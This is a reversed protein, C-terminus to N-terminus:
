GVLRVPDGSVTVSWTTRDTINVSTSGLTYRVRWWTKGGYATAINEPLDVRLELLRDSFKSRSGRFPGPQPNWGRGTNLPDNGLVDLEVCGPPASTCAGSGAQDVTGSWGGTPAVDSGSGNVVSWEFDVSHGNPDLLEIAQAGEGPDWLRVLMTKNSHEPGIDALFFSPYTGGLNAYVGMWEIAYVGVCDTKAPPRSAAPIATDYQDTSCPSFSSGTRARLSFQNSGDRQTNYGSATNALDDLTDVQVFYIGAPAPSITQITMWRNRYGSGSNACSGSTDTRSTLTLTSILPNDTPLYPNTDPGRVRYRTQFSGGSDEGNTSPSGDNNDDYCHSLDYGQITVSSLDVPVEVAYFYGNPDYTDGESGDTLDITTGVADSGRCRNWPTSGSTPGPYQNTPAPNFYYNADSIPLLY